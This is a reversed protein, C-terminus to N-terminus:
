GFANANPSSRSSVRLIIQLHDIQIVKRGLSM